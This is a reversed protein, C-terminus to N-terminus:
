TSTNAFVIILDREVAQAQVKKIRAASRKSVDALKAEAGGLQPCSSARYCNWM